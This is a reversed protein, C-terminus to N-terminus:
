GARIYSPISTWGLRTAASNRRTISAHGAISSKQRRPIRGGPAVSTVAESGVYHIGRLGLKGTGNLRGRDIGPANNELPKGRQRFIEDIRRLAANQKEVHHSLAAILIAFMQGFRHRM